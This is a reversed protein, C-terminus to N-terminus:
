EPIDITSKSRLVSTKKMMPKIDADGDNDSDAAADGDTDDGDHMATLMAMIM